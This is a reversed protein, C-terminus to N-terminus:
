KFNEKLTLVDKQWKVTNYYNQSLEHQMKRFLGNYNPCTNPISYLKQQSDDDDKKSVFCYSISGVRPKKTKEKKLSM